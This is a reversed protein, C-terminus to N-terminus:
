LVVYPLKKLQFTYWIIHIIWFKIFIEIYELYRITSIKGAVRTEGTKHKPLFRFMNGSFLTFNTVIIVVLKFFIILATCLNNWTAHQPQAIHKSRFKNTCARSLIINHKNFINYNTLLLCFWCSIDIFM